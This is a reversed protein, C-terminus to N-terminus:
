RTGATEPRRLIVLFQRGLFRWAFPLRLYMKVMWLPSQNGQSMTYPLFRAWVRDKTFGVKEAVEILSLETLPIYHDFFDWYAGPLFKINPGMAILLGAPKLANYAEQLTSELAAKSPLHEFFNSTFIVDLAQPKIHWPTSCDQQIVTVDPNAFSSADPNLDMAFKRQCRINNIFECYGSGLDLVTSQESIWQAFFASLVHWIATRYEARGEFRKRYIAQLDHSSHAPHSM